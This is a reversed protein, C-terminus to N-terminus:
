NMEQAQVWIVADQSLKKGKYETKPGIGLACFGWWGAHPIGYVFQGNKDAKITQTV